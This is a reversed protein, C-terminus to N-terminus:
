LTVSFSLPFGSKDAIKGAIASCVSYCFLIDREMSEPTQLYAAHNKEILATIPPCDEWLVLPLGPLMRLFETQLQVEYSRHRRLNWGSCNNHPYTFADATYHMLKGLTYWDWLSLCGKRELRQAIRFLFSSANEYNHGRLFCERLSGKCYTLPNADPQICGTLFAAKRCRSLNQFFSEELRKGLQYHSSRRMIM